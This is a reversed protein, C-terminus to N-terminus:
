DKCIAKITLLKDKPINRKLLKGEYYIELNYEKSLMEIIKDLKQNSTPHYEFIINKINSYQSKIDNLIVQESGEVDLKLMDIEKDLYKNLKEIKVRVKKSVVERNWADKNFSAVSYRELDTNDIYLEKEGEKNLIASQHLEVDTINNIFLNEKLINFAIPNPEFAVIKSNPYLKKFYLVSLGIYAGVDIILPQEKNTYFYYCDNTFIERKLYHFEEENFYNITYKSIKSQM